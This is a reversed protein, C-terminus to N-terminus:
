RVCPATTAPHAPSRRRETSADWLDARAYHSFRALVVGVRVGFPLLSAGHPKGFASQRHCSHVGGPEASHSLFGSISQRDFLHGNSLGLFKSFEVIDNPFKGKPETSAKCFGM